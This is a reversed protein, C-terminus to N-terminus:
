ESAKNKIEDNLIKQAVLYTILYVFSKTVSYILITITPNLKLFYSIIFVFLLLAFSLISLYLSIDQKEFIEYIRSVPSFVLNSYSMISLTSAFVGAQYWSDGFIFSFLWPGLILLTLFPIVGILLLKKFLKFSLQKIKEPNDNGLSASESYFVNSVSSGILNTPINIISNSLGYFGVIDVGYLYGLFLVPMQIVFSTLFQSPTAFYAFKKYRKAVWLVKTSKIELLLSKRKILPKSLTTIGVSQGLVGGIILGLGGFNLLGLGIKSINQAVSQNIRTKSIEKYNRFRFNWQKIIEYFGAFFLGIPLLYKYNNIENADLLNLFQDGIFFLVLAFLFTILILILFALAFINIAEEDDKAIPIAWDYRLSAIFIFIGLVSSYVALLGYEEPTYIRTIVPSLLANIVQALASSGAIM